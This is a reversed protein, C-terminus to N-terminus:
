QEDDEEEEEDSKERALEDLQENLAGQLTKLVISWQNFQENTM